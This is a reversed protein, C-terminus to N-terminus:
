EITKIVESFYQTYRHFKDVEDKKLKKLDIEAKELILSVIEDVTKSEDNKQKMTQLFMNLPTQQLLKTFEHDPHMSHCFNQFNKYRESVIEM